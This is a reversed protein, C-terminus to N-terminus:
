LDMTSKNTPYIVIALLSRQYLEGVATMQVPLGNIVLEMGLGFGSDM